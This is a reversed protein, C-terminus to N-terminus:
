LAGLRALPSAALDALSAVRPVDDGPPVTRVARLARYARTLDPHVGPPRRYGDEPLVFVAPCGLSRAPAVDHDVRNGVVLLEGPPRGLRALAIGLLRPDPKAVGEFCDLVVTELVATLGWEALVDACEPPQNAVVTTPMERALATVAAISGPIEQALERWARRVRVWSEDAAASSLIGPREAPTKGDLYFRETDEIFDRLTVSPDATVALDFTGQLWALEFPEDYYIVGGVDLAIASHGTM